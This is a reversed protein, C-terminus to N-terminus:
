QEFPLQAPFFPPVPLQNFDTCPNTTPSICDPVFCYGRSLVQIQVVQECKIVLYYGVALIFDTKNPNCTNAAYDVDICTGVFELKITENPITKPGFRAIQSESPVPLNEVGRQV